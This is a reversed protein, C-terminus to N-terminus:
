QRPSLKAAELASCTAAETEQCSRNGSVAVARRRSRAMSTAHQHVQPQLHRLPHVRLHRPAPLQTRSRVVVAGSVTSCIDVERCLCGSSDGINSREDDEAGCTIFLSPCLLWPWRSWLLHSGKGAGHVGGCMSSLTKADKHACTMPRSSSRALSQGKAAEERSQLDATM